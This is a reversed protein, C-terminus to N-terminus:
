SFNKEVPEDIIFPALPPIEHEHDGSYMLKRLNAFMIELITENIMCVKESSDSSYYNEDYFNFPIAWTGCLFTVFLFITSLDMIHTTQASSSYQDCRILKREFDILTFQFSNLSLFTNVHSQGRKKTFM